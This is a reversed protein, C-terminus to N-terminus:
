DALGYKELRRYLSSKTIGLQDAAKQKNGQCDSLAQRILQLEAAELTMMPLRGGHAERPPPLSLAPALLTEEATLLVAREIVHSLERINGPWHYNELSAVVSASLELEPKHYRRCHGKLFFRALPAIDEPRERLAPVRFELTNLRYYLDPRFAGTASLQPLDCNSASIIRVDITQTRSSGVVEYEGSELVRLLKAQQSSPVLAIEDMFLTGGNALEFRGIRAEKADTFAGKKHGFMESEFLSEPIAAMNVAIFPLAARASQLHIWHALVSKGTGNEGTLLINADTAAVLSLRRMLQSMAESQWVLEPAPRELRQGLARNRQSLGKLQL